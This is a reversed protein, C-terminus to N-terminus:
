KLIKTLKRNLSDRTKKNQIGTIEGYFSDAIVSAQEDSEIENPYGLGSLVSSGIAGRLMQNGFKRYRKEQESITDLKETGYKSDIGPHGSEIGRILGDLKSAKSFATVAKKLNLNKQRDSSQISKELVESKENEVPLVGMSKYVQDISRGSKQAREYAVEAQEETANYYVIEPNKM